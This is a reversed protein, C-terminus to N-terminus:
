ADTKVRVIEVGAGRLRAVDARGPRADTIWLDFANWGAYSIAAPSSWKTADALLVARGARAIAGQKMACEELSTITAGGEPDIGSTGM